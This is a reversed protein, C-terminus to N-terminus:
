FNFELFSFINNRTYSVKALLNKLIWLKSTFTNLILKLNLKKKPSYKRKQM